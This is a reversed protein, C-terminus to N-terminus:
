DRRMALLSMIGGIAAVSSSLLFASTFTGTVDAIHGAITPGISQGAGFFLTLFGLASPALKSGYHDGSYAAMVTPISWATMGFLIASIVIFEELWGQVFLLLSISQTFYILSLTYGRGIKDSIHGWLPGSFLSLLGVLAWLEGAYQETLGVEKVLYAGFFTIYIVY